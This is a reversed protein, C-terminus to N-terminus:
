EIVIKQTHHINGSEYILFYLGPKLNFKIEKQQQVNQHHVCKGDTTYIRIFDNEAKSDFARHLKISNRTPNPYFLTTQEISTHSSVSEPTMFNFNIDDIMWGEKNASTASSIYTFRFKFTDADAYYPYFGSSYPASFWQSFNSQFYKWNTSTDAFNPKNGYWVINYTTDEDLMNVWHMGTDAAVEVMAIDNSDKNMKYFFSMRSVVYSPVPFMFPNYAKFIFVSTDSAPISNLTDTVLANVLSYSQNFIPKSPKGIQWKNFPYNITDIEIHYNYVTSDEFSVELYNQAFTMNTFLVLCFLFLKTKM